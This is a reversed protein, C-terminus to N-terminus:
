LAWRGWMWLCPCTHCSCPSSCTSPVTKIRLRCKYRQTRFQQLSQLTHSPMLLANVHWMGDGRVVFLWLLQQFLSTYRYIVCRRYCPTVPQTTRYAHTPLVWMLEHWDNMHHNNPESQAPRACRVACRIVSNEDTTRFYFTGTDATSMAFQRVHLQWNETVGSSGLDVRSSCYRIFKSKRRGMKIKTTRSAKSAAWLEGEWVCIKVESM